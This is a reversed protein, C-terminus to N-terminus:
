AFRGGAAGGGVVPPAYSGSSQSGKAIETLTAKTHDIADLVEQETKYGQGGDALVENNKAQFRWYWLNKGGQYYEWEPGRGVTSPQAVKRVSAPPGLTTFLQSGKVCDSKHEYGEGSDAIQDNQSDFLRWRWEKAADLYYEFKALM